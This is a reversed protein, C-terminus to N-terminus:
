SSTTKMVMPLMSINVGHRRVSRLSLDKLNINDLINRINVDTVDNFDDFPDAGQIILLEFINNHGAYYAELLPTRGNSGRQNINAGYILLVNIVDAYGKSTAIGLQSRGKSDLVNLDIGSAVAIDLMALNYQKVFATLLKSSDEVSIVYNRKIMLRLLFLLLEEDDGKIAALLMPMYDINYEEAGEEAGETDNDSDYDEILGAIDTPDLISIISTYGLQKALQLPTLGDDTEHVRRHIRVNRDANFELLLKLINPSYKKVAAHLPYIRDGWHEYPINPNAGEELLRKTERYNRSSVARFLNDNAAM